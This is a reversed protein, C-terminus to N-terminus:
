ELLVHLFLLFLIKLGCQSVLQSSYACLGFLFIFFFSLLILFILILFSFLYRIVLLSVPPIKLEVVVLCRVCDLDNAHDEGNKYDRKLDKNLLIESIHLSGHDNRDLFRPSVAGSEQVEKAYWKIKHLWTSCHIGHLEEIQCCIAKKGIFRSDNCAHAVENESEQLKDILIRAGEPQIVLDVPIFASEVKTAGGIMEVSQGSKPSVVDNHVPHFIRVRGDILLYHFDHESYENKDPNPHHNRRQM